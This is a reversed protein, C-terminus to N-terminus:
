MLLPNIGVIVKSCYRRSRGCGKCAKLDELPVPTGDFTMRVGDYEFMLGTSRRDQQNPVSGCAACREPVKREVRSLRTLLTRRM